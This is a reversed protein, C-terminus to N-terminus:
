KFGGNKKYVGVMRNGITMRFRGNDLHMYKSLLIGADEGLYVQGVGAIEERTQCGALLERVKDKAEDGSPGVPRKPRAPGRLGDPAEGKPEPRQGPVDPGAGRPRAGSPESLPQDDPDTAWSPRKWKLHGQSDVLEQVTHLNGDDGAELLEENAQSIPCFEFYRLFKKGGAGDELRYLKNQPDWAVLDWVKTPDDFVYCETYPKFLKEMIM